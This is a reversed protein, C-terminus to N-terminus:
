KADGKTSASQKELHNRLNEKTWEAAPMVAALASGAGPRPGDFSCGDFVVGFSEAEARTVTKGNVIMKQGRRFACRRFVLQGARPSKSWVMFAGDAGTFDCREAELVGTEEVAVGFGCGPTVTNRVAVHVNRLAGVAERRQDRVVCSDVTYFCNTGLGKFRVGTGEGFVCGYYEARAPENMGLSVDLVNGALARAFYSYRVTLGATSHASINQDLCDTASVNEFVIGRGRHTDICDATSWSFDINRVTVWDAGVTMNGAHPVLIDCERPTLGAPLRLYLNGYDADRAPAGGGERNWRFCWYMEMPKLVAKDAAPAFPRRVGASELFVFPFGNYRGVGGMVVVNHGPRMRWVDGGVNEWASDPARVLTCLRAGHGDIVTPREPTGDLSRSRTRLPIEGFREAYPTRTKQLHLADGGRLVSLSHRFTKFPREQTGPWADDGSEHNVWYEAAALPAGASVVAIFAVVVLRM